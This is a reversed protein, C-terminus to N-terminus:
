RPALLSHPRDEHRFYLATLEDSLLPMLEGIRQLLEALVSRTWDEGTASNALQDIDALRVRTLADLLLKEARTRGGGSGEPRPLEAVLRELAVLQFALSRPNAEDQLVLDLLAGVRTGSQYRRRYTILSDTVGLVAEALLAEIDEGSDEILTNTLLITTNVARELRHGIELFHWGDNHTMNERTLGSFAVLATILPDLEDLVDVLGGGAGETLAQLQDDIANVVRWTDMSLRDRVSWAANGLAQLTQPLGGIVGLETLLSM